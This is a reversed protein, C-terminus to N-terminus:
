SCVETDPKIRKRECHLGCDVVKVDGGRGEVMQGASTDSKMQRWRGGVWQARIVSEEERGRSHALGGGAGTM